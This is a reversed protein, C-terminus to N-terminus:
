GAPVPEAVELIENETQQSHKQRSQKGNSSSKQSPKDTEQKVKRAKRYANSYIVVAEVYVQMLAPKNSLSEDELESLEFGLDKTYDSLASVFRNAQSSSLSAFWVTFDEPLYAEGKGNVWGRFADSKRHRGFRGSWWQETRDTLARTTSTVKHTSQDIKKSFASKALFYGVAMFIVLLIILYM